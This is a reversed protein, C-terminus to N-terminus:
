RREQGGGASHKHESKQRYMCEDAQEMVNEWYSRIKNDDDVTHSGADGGTVISAEM